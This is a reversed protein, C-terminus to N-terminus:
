LKTRTTMGSGAHLSAFAAVAAVCLLLMRSARGTQRPDGEQQPRSQGGPGLHPVGAGEQDGVRRYAAMVAREYVVMGEAPSSALMAQSSRLGVPDFASRAAIHGACRGLESVVVALKPVSPLGLRKAISPVKVFFPVGSMTPGTGDYGAGMREAACHMVRAEGELVRLLKLMTARRTALALHECRAHWFLREIFRPCGLPGVFLRGQGDHSMALQRATSDSSSAGRVVRIQTIIYHEVAATLLVEIGRDHRCAAEAVAALIVRVAVERHAECRPSSLFTVGYHRKAVSVYRRDLLASMDTSCLSLVAGARLSAFCSDLFPVVTGFPDLHVFNYPEHITSDRCTRLLHLSADENSVSVTVLPVGSRSPSSPPSPTPPLCNQAVNAEILTRCQESMDNIVVRLPITSSGVGESLKALRLGLVGVGAFCDLM